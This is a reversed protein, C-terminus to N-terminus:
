GPAGPRAGAPSPRAEHRKPRRHSRIVTFGVVALATLEGLFFAQAVSLDPGGPRVALMGGAVVLGVAWALALKGTKGEAVLLQGTIQAASAAVMGAAVLGAVAVTPEFEPRSLFVVVEPGAVRGVVWALATLALGAGAVTASWGRIRSREGAEVLRVLMSLLRGQLSYILTMPARFLTFTMFVVSFLAASGGLFSVALPSAALLIQSAVSGSAYAGLFRVSRERRAEADPTRQWFPVLLIALPAAVM